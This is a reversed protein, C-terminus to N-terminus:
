YYIELVMLTFVITPLSCERLSHSNLKKHKLNTRLGLKENLAHLFLFGLEGIDQPCPLFRETDATIQFLSSFQVRKQYLEMVAIAREFGSSLNKKRKKKM